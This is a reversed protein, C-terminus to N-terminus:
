SMFLQQKLKIKKSLEFNGPVEIHELNINQRIVSAYIEASLGGSSFRDEISFKKLCFLRKLSDMQEISENLNSVLSLTEIQPIVDVIKKLSSFQFETGYNAFFM